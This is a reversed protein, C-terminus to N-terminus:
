SVSHIGQQEVYENNIEEHTNQNKGIIISPENIYFLLYDEEGPLSRLIYEELALNLTPDTIGRNSIFKM